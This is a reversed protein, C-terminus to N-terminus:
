NGQLVNRYSFEICQGVVLTLNLRYPMAHLFKSPFTLINFFDERL